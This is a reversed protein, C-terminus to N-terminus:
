QAPSGPMDGTKVEALVGDMDNFKVGKPESPLLGPFDFESTAGTVKVRARALRNGGLDITVPVYMLFDPPVNDQQVRFRVKFKGDAQAQSRWGVRYTPISWGYVWENFFWSMDAGVDKEVVKQFDATSARGGHYSQYFDHMIGTFRDEKMTQLDLTLMRLMHLVWAGKEYIIASYDGATSITAVRHGLSIPVADNRRLMIDAQWRELM